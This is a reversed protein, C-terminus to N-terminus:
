FLNVLGVFFRQQYKNELAYRYFAAERWHQPDPNVSGTSDQYLGPGVCQKSSIVSRGCGRKHQAFM